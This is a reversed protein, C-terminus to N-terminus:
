RIKRSFVLGSDTPSFFPNLAGEAGAIPKAEFSDIERLYLQPPGGTTAVYVLRKGDPSLVIARQELGALRQGHPLTIALRGVAVAPAPKLRWVALGALLGGLLLSVLVVAM